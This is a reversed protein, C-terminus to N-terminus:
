TGCACPAAPRTPCRSAWPPRAPIPAEIRVGTAALNLALDDALNTIKSIKVGAAPQIEYRTVAPGRCIDLIKTQVGFSKLTDVLIRGNTQLEETEAAPDGQPSEALMTIPPFCYASQPQAAQYQFQEQPTAERRKGEERKQIFEETLAAVEDLPEKAEELLDEKEGAPPAEEIAPPKEPAEQSAEPVPSHVTHVPPAPLKLEQVAKVAEELEQTGTVIASAAEEQPTPEPASGDALGFVAKLKDLKENPEKQKKKPEPKPFSGATGLSQVPHAPLPPELPVDIDAREQELLQREEERRQRANQIGESVVDVPKKLTRFLGILTTGTLVMIAVFLLLLVIIKAGLEGAAYLLPQGLLGGVVGGSTNANRSYLISLYEGFNLGEPLKSAGFIFGTACFLVIVVVTMWIKGTISGRPKELATIVAVYVMLVPWLLAWSGFLGLVANHAWNWLNDGPILVLCALLIACAFLVVARVQNKQRVQEATPRQPATNKGRGAGRGAPASGRKATNKKKGASAPKKAAM